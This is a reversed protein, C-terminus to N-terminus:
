AGTAKGGCFNGADSLYPSSHLGSGNQANQLLSIDRKEELSRVINGLKDPGCSLQGMRTIM